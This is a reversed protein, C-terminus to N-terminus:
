GFRELVQKIQDTQKGGTHGYVQRAIGNFSTDQEHLQIIRSETPTPELEITDSFKGNGVVPAHILRAPRDVSEGAFRIYGTTRERIILGNADYHPVIFLKVFNDKLASGKRDVGWANATDSHIMFYLIINVSAYLTTAELVLRKANDAADVIPTWDDFFVPLIKHDKHSLETDAHRKKVVQRIIEIGRAVGEIGGNGGFLICGAWEGRDWKPGIVVPQVGRRLWDAAIHRAQYTKGTQQGGIIAFSQTLQTFVSILDLPEPAAEIIQGSELAKRENVTPPIYRMNSDPSLLLGHRTEVVVSESELRRTRAREQRLHEMSILLALTGRGARGTLWVLGSAAVLGGISLLFIGFEFRFWVSLFIITTVSGLTVPIILRWSPGSIRIESQNRM